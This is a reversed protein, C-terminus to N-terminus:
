VFENNYVLTNPRRKRVTGLAPHKYIHIVGDDEDDVETATVTLPVETAATADAPPM